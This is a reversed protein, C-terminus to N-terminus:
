RVRPAALRLAMSQAFALSGAPSARGLLAGRLAGAAAEELEPYRELSPFTLLDDAITARLLEARRGDLPHTVPMPVDVRAPVMGAAADLAATAPSTLHCLLELADDRHPSSAPLAYAHCGAYVARGAPGIPYRAVDVVDRLGAAVLLGYYGPWDGVMAVAGSRFGASVEDFYWDELDPPTVRHVRHAEVMWTLAEVAGASDLHPSGDDGFLPGGFAVALEFFTGFLGSDRTPFAFGAVPEPVSAAVELLDAWTAPPPVTGLVDRRLWLLRADINRPVCLLRGSTRCLQAATDHFGDLAVTGDLGELWRAQSAAYKSHTSVLDYPAGAPLATALHANLSPHDGRFAVDIRIGQEDTFSALAPEIQDYQPGSILAVRLTRM